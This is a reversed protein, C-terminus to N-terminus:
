SPAPRARPARVRTNARLVALPGTGGRKRGKRESRKERCEEGRAGMRRRPRRGAAPGQWPGGGRAAAAEVQAAGRPPGSRRGPGACRRRSGKGGTRVPSRGERTQRVGAEERRSPRWAPPPLAASGQPAVMVSSLRLARKDQMREGLGGVREQAPSRHECGGVPTGRGAASARRSGWSGGKAGKPRAGLPRQWEM